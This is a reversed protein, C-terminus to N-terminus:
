SPNGGQDIEILEYRGGGSRGIIPTVTDAIRMPRLFEAIEEDVFVEAVTLPPEPQRAVLLLNGALLLLVSAAWALRLWGNEWVRSWVDRPPEVTSRGNAERMVREKLELPPQPPAFGEFLRDAMQDDDLKKMM